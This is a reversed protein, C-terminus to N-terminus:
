PVTVSVQNSPESTDAGRMAHVLYTYTVGRAVSADHFSTADAATDGVAAWSASADKRVVMFEEEGSSNDRWALHVGGNAPMASLETPAALAHQSMDHHHSEGGCAALLVALLTIRM